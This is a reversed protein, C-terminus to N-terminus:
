FPSPKTKEPATGPIIVTMEGNSLDVEKVKLMIIPKDKGSNIVYSIDLIFGAGMSTEIVLFGDGIKWAGKEGRGTYGGLTSDSQPVPEGYKKLEPLHGGIFDGRKLIHSQEGAIAAMHMCILSLSIFSLKKM